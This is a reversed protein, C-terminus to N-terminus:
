DGRERGPQPDLAGPFFKLDQLVTSDSPLILWPGKFGHLASGVVSTGCWGSPQSIDLLYVQVPTGM